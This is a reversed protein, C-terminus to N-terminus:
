ENLQIAFTLFLVQLFLYVVFCNTPNSFEKEYIFAVVSGSVAGFANSGFALGNLFDGANKSGNNSAQVTLADTVTDCYAINMMSIMVCATVFYKGFYTGM